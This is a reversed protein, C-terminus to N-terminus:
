STTGAHEDLLDCALLISRAVDRAQYKSLALAYSARGMVQRLEPNSALRAMAEALGGVDKIPVLYGNKGHEVTERCGPADSTVIPRAMAMAELVSRPTGERYSPLVFVSCDAIAPRVDAMEGHYIIDGEAVAQELATIDFAAPNPDLPGVLHFSADSNCTRVIRAAAIYEGIGKDAVLRAIMLFHPVVPLPKPSFFDTDVGSGNVIVTRTDTALIGAQEFAQRDDPNQFLVVQVRKLALRYLGSAIRNVLQRKLSREGDTFAYGLGTIMAYRRKVGSLAAALTGYIVPKITYTIVVDPRIAALASRLQMFVKIDAAPSLSSRALDISTFTIARTRLWALTKDDSAPAIAHVEHGAERLAELLPGRFNVLSSALGAIIVVRAM